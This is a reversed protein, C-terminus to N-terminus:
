EDVLRVGRFGGVHCGLFFLVGAIKARWMARRMGVVEVTLTAAQTKADFSIGVM